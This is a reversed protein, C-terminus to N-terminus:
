PARLARAVVREPGRPWHELAAASGGPRAAEQKRAAERKDAEAGSQIRSDAQFAAMGRLDFRPLQLAIDELIVEAKSSFTRDPAWLGVGSLRGNVTFKLAQRGAALGSIVEYDFEQAGKRPDGSGKVSVALPGRLVHVPAPVSYPTHALYEVLNEFGAM